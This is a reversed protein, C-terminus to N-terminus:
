RKSGLGIPDFLQKCNPCRIRVKKSRYLKAAEMTGAANCHPCSIRIRANRDMAMTADQSDSILSVDEAPSRPLVMQLIHSGITIRDGDQLHFEKILHDNIFMGNLSDLDRIIIHGDEETISVHLRSVGHDKLVLSAEQSRGITFPYKEVKVNKLTRTKDRVIIEPMPKTYYKWIGSYYGDDGELYDAAPVTDMDEYVRIRIDQGKIQFADIKRILDQWSIGSSSEVIQDYFYAKAVKGEKAFALSFRDDQILAVLADKRGEMLGLVQTEIKLFESSGQTEPKCEQLVLISKVLIPDTALFHLRVKPNRALYIFFERITTSQIERISSLIGAAYPKKNFFLLYRTQDDESSTICYGFDLGAVDESGELIRTFIEPDPSVNHLLVKSFPFPISLGSSDM